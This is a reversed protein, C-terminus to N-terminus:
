RLEHGLRADDLTLQAGDAGPVVAGDVTWTYAFSAPSNRWIGPLCRVTAGQVTPTSPDISPASQLVPAALEFRRYPRIDLTNAYGGNGGSAILSSGYPVLDNVGDGAVEEAVFGPERAGTQPDFALLTEAPPLGGEYFLGGVVLRGGQFALASPVSGAPLDAAFPLLAGTTGDFAALGTRPAGAAHDFQGGVFVRGGSALLTTRAVTGSADALAGPAFATRLAGTDADLAALGDRAAGDVGAFAGMVYLESGDRALHAVGDGEVGARFGAVARGTGADLAGVRDTPRGDLFSFTGGVYVRDGVGLLTTVDGVADVSYDPDAEGTTPDLRVIPGDTTAAYLWGGAFALAKARVTVANFSTIVRDTRLDIASIGRQVGALTLQGGAFLAGEGAGLTYIVGPSQDNRVIPAFTRDEAATAGDLRAITRDERSSDTANSVYLQGADYALPIGRVRTFSPVIRANPAFGTALAGTQGDLAALRTTASASGAVANRSALYVRGGGLALGGITGASGATFAPAFGTDLTGDDHILAVGARATGGVATFVGAVYLGATGHALDQVATAGGTLQPAWGSDVAGTTADLRAVGAHAAGGVTVFTGALYLDGGDAELDWVTGTFAPATFGAVRTGDGAHLAALRASTGGGITTFAGGAYVVDDHVALATVEGDAGPDFDPDLTGDALLHAIGARPTGGVGTFTGGIFTGGAGDPASASVRGGEVPATGHAPAGSALNFSAAGQADRVWMTSRTSLPTTVFLRDGGRAAVGFDHLPQLAGDLGTSADTSVLSPSAGPEASTRPYVRGGDRLESKEGATWLRGSATIAFSRGYTAGYSADDLDVDRTATVDPTGGDAVGAVRLTKLRLRSGTDTLPVDGAVVDGDPTVAIGATDTNADAEYHLVKATGTAVDLVI